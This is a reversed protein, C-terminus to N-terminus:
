KKTAKKAAHILKKMLTRQLEIKDNIMKIEKAIDPEKFVDHIWSSFDNKESSVHSKFLDEHMTELADVLEFISKLKRGDGLYFEYEQPAQGLINSSVKIYVKKKAKAPARVKIKKVAKKVAKKKAKKAKAKKAAKKKAKAM